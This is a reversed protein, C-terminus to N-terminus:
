PQGAVRAPGVIIPTSPTVFGVGAQGVANNGWCYVAGSTTLGCGTYLGNFTGVYSLGGPVLVPSLANTVSGGSGLQGLDNLGWCYADGSSIIGCGNWAGASLATYTRGGAVPIPHLAINTTGDGLMGYGNSGWCYAQGSATLGCTHFYGAVLHTFSLGGQVPVPLPSITMSDNGLEGEFGWGWCWAAGVADLACVHRQGAAIVVFKKGGYVPIPTSHPTIALSDGGLQHYDNAGWCYATSDAVLGCTFYTGASIVAFTLGGSILGPLFRCPGQIAGSNCAISGAGGLQDFVDSGWCYVAGPLTLGCTHADGSALTNFLLGGAVPTPADACPDNNPGCTSSGLSDGLGGYDDRGWCYARQQNTLACEHSGGMAVQIFQGAISTVTFTATDAVSESIAVVSVTGIAVTTVLGTSNVTARTSDSILWAVPRNLLNGVSDFTQAGLQRRAGVLVNASNLSLQLKAVTPRIVLLTASDQKGESAARIFVSGGAHGTATGAASVTAVATNSTSWVVNRGVLTDGASDRVTANFTTNSDAFVTDFVPTITISAVSPLVGIAATGFKGDTATARITASGAAKATVLGAAV